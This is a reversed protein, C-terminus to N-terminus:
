CSAWNLDLSLLALELGDYPLRDGALKLAVRRKDAVQPKEEVSVSSVAPRYLFEESRSEREVARPFGRWPQDARQM